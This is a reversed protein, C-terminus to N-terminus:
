NQVLNATNTVWHSDFENVITQKFQVHVMVDFLTNSMTFITTGYQLNQHFKNKKRM